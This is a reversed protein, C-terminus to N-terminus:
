TRNAEDARGAAYENRSVNCGGIREGYKVITELGNQSNEIIEDDLTIAGKQFLLIVTSGGFAFYGKEDGQAVAASGGQHNEIRGVMMAGVEMQIMQGIAQSHLLSYSRANRCFVPLKELAVPRVTHLVGPLFVDSEKQGSVAYAYRHYDDVCLRFILAWGGNFAEALERNQLLSSLTYCSQKVSLVTDDAIQWATLKGDCPAILNNKGANIPRAESKIHRTFFDNFCSYAENEYVSLDIKNKRIFPAIRHKSFRSSLYAGVLRSVFPRAFISLVARGPVTRYLFRLSASPRQDIPLVPRM